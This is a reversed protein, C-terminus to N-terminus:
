FQSQPYSFIKVGFFCSEKPEGSPHTRSEAFSPLIEFWGPPLGRRPNHSGLTGAGHPFSQASRGGYSLARQPNRAFGAGLAALLPARCGASRRCFYQPRYRVGPVRKGKRGPQACFRPNGPASTDVQPARNGAKTSEIRGRSSSGVGRLGADPHGFRTYSWSCEVHFVPM